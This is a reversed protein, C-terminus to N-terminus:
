KLKLCAERLMNSKSLAPSNHTIYKQCHVAESTGVFMANQSAFISCVESQM